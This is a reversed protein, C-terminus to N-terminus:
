RSFSQGVGSVASQRPSPTPWVSYARAQPDAEALFPARWEGRGPLRVRRAMGSWPGRAPGGWPRWAGPRVPQSLTSWVVRFGSEMNRNHPNNRNRAAGRLNNHHNPFGRDFRLNGRAM